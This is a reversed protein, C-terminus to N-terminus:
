GAPIIRGETRVIVDIKTFGAWCMLCISSLVALYVFARQPSLDLFFDRPAGHLTATKQSM